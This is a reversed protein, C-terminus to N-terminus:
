GYMDYTETLPQARVMGELCARNIDEMATSAQEVGGGAVKEQSRAQAM